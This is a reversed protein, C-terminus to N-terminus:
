AKSLIMTRQGITEYLWPVGPLPVLRALRGSRGAHHALFLAPAFRVRVGAEQAWRYIARHTPYNTEETLYRHNKEVVERWRLGRQFQNRIGLLAWLALWPRARVVTALPVFVHLEVLGWRAPFIHISLGSPKLVRGLERMVAAYDMVHEFVQSSVVLDFSDDAFPLRYPHREALHLRPRLAEPVPERHEWYRDKGEAWYPVVDVGDAEFGRARLDSVVDGYGCGFDLVRAPPTLSLGLDRAM